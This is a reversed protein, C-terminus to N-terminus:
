YYCMKKTRDVNELKEAIDLNYEPLEYETNNIIVSYNIM